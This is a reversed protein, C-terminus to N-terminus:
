STNRGESKTNKSGDIKIDLRDTTSFDPISPIKDRVHGKVFGETQRYPLHFYTKAYGLMMVFTDPYHFPEGLKGNNMEALEKEWNDIFDFGLLIEGRRVPSENYESWEV